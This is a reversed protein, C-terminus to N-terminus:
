EPSPLSHPEARMRIRMPQMRGYTLSRWLWEAPGFRYHRLWMSSLAIQAPLFLAWILILFTPGIKGMLHPGPLFGYFLFLGAATQSLYNTLAMRGFPALIGLRERWQPIQYLLVIVSVYFMTLGLFGLQDPFDLAPMWAPIGKPAVESSAAFLVNGILGFALGAWLCRRFFTSHAAPNQLLLMRGVWLGLLFRGFVAIQYAGQTPSATIRWDYEWNARLMELYNGSSFAQLARANLAPDVVSFIGPWPWVALLHGWITPVVVAAIIGWLLITRSRSRIFLPLFMGWLAYFRLIDWNWFLWGHVAGIVFLWGVRRLFFSRFSTGRALARSLQVSFGLGFLLSFLGIFKSEVFLQLFARVWTDLNATPFAQQQEPTLYVDGSFLPLNALMVGSLAFGRLVDILEVRQRLAIPIM